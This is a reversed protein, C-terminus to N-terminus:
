SVLQRQKGAVHPQAYASRRPVLCGPGLINVGAQEAAQLLDAPYSYAKLHPYDKRGVVYNVYTPASPANRSCGWFVALKEHEPPLIGRGIFGAQNAQRAPTAHHNVRSDILVMDGAKSPISVVTRPVYPKWAHHREHAAWYKRRASRDIQHWARQLLSRESPKPPQIFLDTQRHSGPEADLGGGYEATNDQLYYAVTLMEYDKEFFFNHGDRESSATDKHWGGFWNLHVTGEFAFLVFDKGLLSRLVQLTPEHFCLWRVEPYRVFVDLLWHDTDTPPRQEPPLDFKPRFFARLWKVQEATLVRPVLLYGDRYYQEKQEQTLM